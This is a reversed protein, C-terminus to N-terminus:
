RVLRFRSKPFRGELQCGMALMEAHTRTRPGAKRAIMRGNLTYVAEPKTEGCYEWGAARYISGKHGRWSDAYTVLTHWKADIMRVSKSLLFSCANPPVEPEIALRSLSLVGQWREGAWAQAASKTPPLWWAVGVCQNYFVWGLPYLGHLYTATNSAGKAYHEREILERAVDLGVDSVWWEKKSLHLTSTPISGGDAPPGAQEVKSSDVRLTQM